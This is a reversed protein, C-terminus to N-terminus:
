VPREYGYHVRCYRLVQKRNDRAEMSQIIEIAEIPNFGSSYDNTALWNKVWEIDDEIM